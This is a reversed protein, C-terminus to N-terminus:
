VKKLVKTKKNSPKSNLLYDLNMKSHSLFEDKNQKVKNFTKKDKDFAFDWLKESFENTGCRYLNLKNLAMWDASLKYLKKGLGQHLFNDSLERSLDDITLNNRKCYNQLNSLTKNHKLYMKCGRGNIGFENGRIKVFETRPKNLYTEKFAEFDSKYKKEAIKLLKQYESDLFKEKITDNDIQDLKQRIESYKSYNFSLAIKEIVSQKQELTKENYSGYDNNIDKKRESAGINISHGKTNMFHFIDKYYKDLNEKPLYFMRLYGVLLDEKVISLNHVVFGKDDEEIAPDFIATYEENNHKFKLEKPTKFKEKKFNMGYIHNNLINTINEKKYKHM